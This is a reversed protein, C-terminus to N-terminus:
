APVLEFGLRSASKQLSGIRRERQRREFDQQGIDVYEAGYRLARYVYIALRRATAKIAKAPGLRAKMSRYYAGLATKTRSVAYAAMRLAQSARNNVRRPRRPLVRGGSKALRPALGLWSTFHKESPWRTMDVGTESILQMAITTSIGDISTLDVGSAVFLARRLREREENTRTTSPPLDDDDGRHELSLLQQFIADDCEALKCGYLDYLEIVQRLAFLHEERWDGVLAAAIQETSAKLRYDRLEALTALNREGAIIARMISMGTSGTIDTVVQHLQINMQALAKHMHQVHEARAEILMQRQRLYSRLVRIDAEPRFCGALLGYTHLTQLWQADSVDAKRGSVNKVKRADVLLVKIGFRELIEWLPIWYVGTSEMAVTEIRCDGLWEAIRRLEGTTTGFSRVAVEDRGAPVAVLMETAGVDIGAANRNIHELDDGAAVSQLPNHQSPRMHVGNFPIVAISGARAAM